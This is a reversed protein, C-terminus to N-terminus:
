GCPYCVRVKAVAEAISTLPEASRRMEISLWGHYGSTLLAQGIRAHDVQPQTFDALQPESIHFHCTIDAGEAIAEVPDDGALHICATDLHLRVAPHAVTRVLEAAEYWHTLFDCDYMAPNPEIGLQVGFEACIQGAERFFVVAQAVAQAVTLAGRQRNKPSGFVLVRAGLAGALAAVRRLHNLTAARATDTSFLQLDPKGFLIAQLAPVVFGQQELDAQVSHAASPEAGQWDPWLKTPAMEIGQVRQARLISCVPAQESLDWAINSVALKM